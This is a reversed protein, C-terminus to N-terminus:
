ANNVCHQQQTGNSIGIGSFPQQSTIPLKPVAAILLCSPLNSQVAATTSSSSDEGSGDMEGVFLRTANLRRNTTFDGQLLTSNATGPSCIARVPMLQEGANASSEM